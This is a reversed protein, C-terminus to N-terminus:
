GKLAGKAMDLSALEADNMWDYGDLSICIIM